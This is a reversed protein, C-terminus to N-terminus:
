RQKPNLLNRLATATDSIPSYGLLDTIKEINACSAFVDGNRKPQFDVTVDKHGTIAQLLELLSLMSGTGVNFVEGRLPIPHSAALLNAHVINEIHTFDRSQTGDGFIIPVTNNQIAEIFTSVVAAYQSTPDQRDGFVNFYRLSATDINADSLLQEGMVKSQAYPSEASIIDSEKSPLNPSSGYNAASSAFVVRSCKAKKAANLINSTGKINIEFCADPQEFSKPVSVFAAEHFVHSCGQIAEDVAATDLISGEILSLEIGDLNTRIGSSFDDLVRVTAGLGALHQTLHSGIFGAGGTVLVIRGDFFNDYRKSDM